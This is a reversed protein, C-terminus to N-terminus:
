ERLRRGAPRRVRRPVHLSDPRCTGVFSWTIDPSLSRSTLCAHRVQAQGRRSLCRLDMGMSASVTLVTCPPQRSFFELVQARRLKKRFMVAGSADAGHAQFVNKVLDLGITNANRM